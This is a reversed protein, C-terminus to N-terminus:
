WHCVGGCFGSEGLGSDQFDVCSARRTARSFACEDWANMESALKSEAEAYRVPRHSVDPVASCPAFDCARGPSRFLQRGFGVGGGVKVGGDDVGNDGGLLALWSPRLSDRGRARPPKLRGAGAMGIKSGRRRREEGSNRRERRPRTRSGGVVGVGEVRRLQM